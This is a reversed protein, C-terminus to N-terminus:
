YPGHNQRYPNGNNQPPPPATQPTAVPVVPPAAPAVPKYQLTNPDVTFRPPRLGKNQLASATNDELGQLEGSYRRNISKLKAINAPDRSDWVDQETMGQPFVKQFEQQRRDLILRQQNGKTENIKNIETQQQDNFHQQRFWDVLPDRPAFVKANELSQRAQQPSLADIEAIGTKAGTSRVGLADNNYSPRKLDERTNAAIGANYTSAPVKTNVAVGIRKAMDPDTVLVTNEHRNVVGLAIKEAVAAPVPPGGVKYVGGSMEELEATVPVTALRDTTALHHYYQAREMAMNAQANHLQAESQIQQGKWGAAAQQGALEAAQQLPAVRSQWEAEKGAFGPYLVGQTVEGINIPAARRAANSYGAAGGLGAAAVRELWNPAQRVPAKAIEARLAALAQPYNQPPATGGVYGPASDSPRSLGLRGQMRNLWTDAGPVNPAPIPGPASPPLPTGPASAASPVFGVGPIFQTDDPAPPSAPGGFYAESGDPDGTEDPGLGALMRQNIQDEQVESPPQGELDDDEDGPDGTYYPAPVPPTGEDLYRRLM